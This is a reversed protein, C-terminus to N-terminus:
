VAREIDPQAAEASTGDPLEIIYDPAPEVALLAVVRGSEGAREGFKLRVVDGFRYAVGPLSGRVWLQELEYQNLRAM